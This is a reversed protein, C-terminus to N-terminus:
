LIRVDMQLTYKLDLISIPYQILVDYDGLIVKAMTQM